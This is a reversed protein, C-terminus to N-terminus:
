STGGAGGTGAPDVSVWGGGRAVWYYDTGPNGHPGVRPRLVHQIGARRQIRGARAVRM